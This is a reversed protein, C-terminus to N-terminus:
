EPPGDPPEANAGLLGAASWFVLGAMFLDLRIELIGVSSIVAGAGRLLTVVRYRTRRGM